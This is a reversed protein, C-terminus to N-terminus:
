SYIMLMSRNHVYINRLELFIILMNRSKDDKFVSIGFREKVYDEIKKMGGYSLENIKRDIIFNLLERNTKFELLDDIRITEGSKLTNRSRKLVSQILRSLYALFCDALSTVLHRANMTAYQALRKSAGRTRIRELSANRRAELEETSVKEDDLAKDIKVLVYAAQRASEDIKSALEVTMLFLDIIESFDSFYFYLSDTCVMTGKPYFIPLQAIEASWTFQDDEM